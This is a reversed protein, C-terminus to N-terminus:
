CRGDNYEEATLEHTATEPTEQPHFYAIAACACDGSAAIRIHVLHMPAEPYILLNSSLYAAAPSNASMEKAAHSNRASSAPLYRAVKGM